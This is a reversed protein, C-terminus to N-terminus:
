ADKRPRGPKKREELKQELEAIRREQEQLLRKVELLPWYAAQGKLSEIDIL